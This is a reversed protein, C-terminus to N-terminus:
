GKPGCGPMPMPLSNLDAARKTAPRKKGAAGKKKKTSGGGAGLKRGAPGKPELKPAIAADPKCNDNMWYHVYGVAAGVIDQWPIQQTFMYSMVLQAFPLYLYPVALGYMNMEADPNQLSTLVTISMILADGLFQWGLPHFLLSLLATCSALVRAYEALGLTGELGRGFSILYYLKQILQPGIGGFFAAATLPRWLQGSATARADLALAEPQLIGVQALTAFGLVLSFWARTLTPIGLYSRQVKLLVSDAAGGRLALLNAATRSPPPPAALRRVPRLLQPRAVLSRRASTHPHDLRAAARTVLAILLLVHKPSRRM